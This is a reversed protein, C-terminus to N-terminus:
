LSSISVTEHKVCVGVVVNSETVVVSITENCYFTGGVQKYTDCGSFCLKEVVGNSHSEKIGSVKQSFVMCLVHPFRSCRSPCFAGRSTILDSM